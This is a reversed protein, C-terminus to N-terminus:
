RSVSLFADSLSDRVDSALMVRKGFKREAIDGALGAIYVASVVSDFVDQGFRAGQAVFGTIIGALTDGGGAKGVGPNGTPIIVVRGDPSAILNRAGKLVLIVNKENAFRRAEAIRDEIKDGPTRGLLRLFEGEHPTMVVAPGAAAASALPSLANLGDADIVIPVTRKELLVRVLTRTGADNSTLGSGVEVADVGSAILKEIAPLASDGIIGDACEEQPRVIIEPVLRSAVADLASKATAVTVTGVGSMMAANAALAAAGSYERSGAVLLAHGRRGKYSSPSFETAHLWRKVDSSDALFIDSTGEDVLDVPSGIDAVVLRGCFDAAPPMVVALKPATFTVTVDATVCTGPPVASDADLGSPIDVAVVMPGGDAERMRGIHEVIRDHIGELPRKLGTGFLADVIVDPPRGDDFTALFEETEGDSDFQLFELKQSETAALREFNVRADGSTSEVSGALLATVDAGADALLRAIAAGDGGNNGKGCVVLVKRHSVGGLVESVERFVARAANEMLELSSVGFRAVTETDVRHMEQSTLVKRM